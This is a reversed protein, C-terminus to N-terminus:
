NHGIALGRSSGTFACVNPSCWLLLPKSPRPVANHRLYFVPISSQRPTLHLSLSELNSSLTAIFSQLPSDFTSKKIHLSRLSPWPNTSSSWARTLRIRGHSVLSLRCLYPLRKLALLIDNPDVDLVLDTATDRVLELRRVAIFLHLFHHLHIPVLDSLKVRLMRQALAQFSEFLLAASESPSSPSSQEEFICPFMKNLAKRPVELRQVNTLSVRGALIANELVTLPGRHLVLTRFLTAYKPRLKRKFFPSEM